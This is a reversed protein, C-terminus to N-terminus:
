RRPSLRRAPGRPDAAAPEPEWTVAEAHSAFRATPDPKVLTFGAATEMEEIGARLRRCVANVLWLPERVQVSGAWACLQEMVDWALARPFTGTVECVEPDSDLPPPAPESTAFMGREHIVAALAQPVRVVLAERVLACAAPEPDAWDPLPDVEIVRELVLQRDVGRRRGEADVEVCVAKVIGGLSVYELPVVELVRELGTNRSDYRLRVPRREELATHFRELLALRALPRSAGPASTADLGPLVEGLARAAAAAMPTDLQALMAKAFGIARVQTGDLAPLPSALWHRGAQTRLDLGGRGGGRGAGRLERLRNDLDSAGVWGVTRLAALLEATTAPGAALRRLLVLRQAQGLGAEPRPHAAVYASAEERWAEDDEGAPGSAGTWAALDRGDVPKGGELPRVDVPM